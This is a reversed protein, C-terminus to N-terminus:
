IIPKFLDVPRGVVGPKVQYISGATPENLLADISLSQRATTIFLTDLDPGGFCCSSPQSVPLQVRALEAGSRGDYCVVASAGWLAVWLNGNVDIDMGDPYGDAVQVLLRRNSIGGDSPDFDFCDIRRTLTDTYYMTRGDASWALGNSITVGSLVRVVNLSADVRYLNAEGEALDLHMSGAFFRGQPDCKGDNFRNRPLDAEPQALLQLQRTLPEYYAFGHDRALLWRGDACPVACGLLGGIAHCQHHGTTPDFQHWEGATINVWQLANRHWVPGEALDHRSDFLLEALM